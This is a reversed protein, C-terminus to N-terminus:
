HGQSHGRGWVAVNGALSESKWDPFSVHLGWHPHHLHLYLFTTHDGTCPTLPTHVHPYTCFSGAEEETRARCVRGGALRPEGVRYLSWDSGAWEGGELRPQGEQGLGARVEM